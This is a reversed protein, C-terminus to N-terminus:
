FIYRSYKLGTATSVFRQLVAVSITGDANVTLPHESGGVDVYPGDVTM